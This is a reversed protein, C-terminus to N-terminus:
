TSILHKLVYCTKFSSISTMRRSNTKLLGLSEITCTLICLMKNCDIPPFTNLMTVLGLFIWHSPM